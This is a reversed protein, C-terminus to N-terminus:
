PNVQTSLEVNLFLDSELVNLVKYDRLISRRVIITMDYRQLWKTKAIVPAHIIEGTEQLGIGNQTLVARNQELQISDRILSLVEQSDPGFCSCLIELTEHRQLQDTGDEQGVGPQHLEVAYTDAPARTIGFALWNSTREPQNPPEGQWRPRVVEDPLGSLQVLVIQFFDELSDGQTPAPAAEPQLYGAESSDNAM